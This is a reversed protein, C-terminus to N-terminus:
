NLKIYKGDVVKLIALPKVVDGKEDFSFTGSVGEYNEVAYLYDKICDTNYKCVGIADALLNLNDYANASYPTSDENYVFRYKEFYNKSIQNEIDIFSETVILGEPPMKIIESFEPLKVVPSGAIAGAYKSEIIQKVLMGGDFGSVPNVYVADPNIDELKTVITRFDTEEALYDNIYVVNGGLSKFTDIFNDKYQKCSSSQGSIVAVSKIGEINYLHQAIQKSHLASTERTRFVYDGADSIEPSGAIFGFQIAKSEETLPSVALVSGSMAPGIFLRIGDVNLMKSVSSTAVKTDSQTDEYQLIIQFDNNRNIEALALDLSNQAGEGISAYKGSLPVLVGIKYSEKQVGVVKATTNFECGSVFILLIVLLCLLIKRKM